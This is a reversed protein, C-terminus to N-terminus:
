STRKRPLAVAAFPKADATATKQAFVYDWLVHQVLNARKRHQAAALLDLAEVAALLDGSEIKAQAIDEVAAIAARRVTEVDIEAAM